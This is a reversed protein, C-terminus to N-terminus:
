GIKDSIADINCNVKKACWSTTLASLVLGYCIVKNLLSEM